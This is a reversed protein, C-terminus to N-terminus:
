CEKLLGQARLGEGLAIAAEIEPRAARKNGLRLLIEGHLLRTKGSREGLQIARQVHARAEKLESGERLLVGAMAAHVRANTADLEIANKLQNIAEDTRGEQEIRLASEIADDIRKAQAVKRAETLKVRAEDLRGDLEYALQYSEIADKFHGSALSDDGKKLLERAKTLKAFGRAKLIQERRLKQRKEDELLEIERQVMTALEDASFLRRAEREYTKRREPDMLVDHADKLRLFIAEIKSAYSGLRKRFFSDPHFQKSKELYARRIEAETASPAVGLLRYHSMQDLRHFTFLVQKKKELDLDVDEQLEMPNFIFDDFPSPTRVRPTPRPPEQAPGTGPLLIAEKIMLNLLTQLAHAEPLGSIQLLENVSMPRDLRSVLYGEEATLSLRALQTPSAARLVTTRDSLARERASQDALLKDYLRGM